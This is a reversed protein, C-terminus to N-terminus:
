IEEQCTYIAQALIFITQPGNTLRNLRWGRLTSDHTRNGYPDGLYYFILTDVNEPEIDITPTLYRFLIKVEIFDKIFIM